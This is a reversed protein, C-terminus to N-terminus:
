LFPPFVRLIFVRVHYSVIVVDRIRTQFFLLLPDCGRRGFGGLSLLKRGCFLSPCRDRRNYYGLRSGVSLNTLLVIMWEFYLGNDDKLLPYEVMSIKGRNTIAVTIKDESLDLLNFTVFEEGDFYEFEKLYCKEKM